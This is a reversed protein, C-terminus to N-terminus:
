SVEPHTAPPMSVSEQAQGVVEYAVVEKEKGKLTNKGLPKMEFQGKVAEYTNEGVVIMMPKAVASELRSATNVTDGLV